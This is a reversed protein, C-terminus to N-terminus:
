TESFTTIKCSAPHGSFALIYKLWLFLFPLIISKFEIKFRSHSLYCLVITENSKCLILNVSTFLYEKFFLVEYSM